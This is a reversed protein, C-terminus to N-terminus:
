LVYQTLSLRDDIPTKLLRRLGGRDLDGFGKQPAQALNPKGCGLHTQRSMYIRPKLIFYVM